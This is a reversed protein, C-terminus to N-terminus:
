EVQSRAPNELLSLIRAVAGKVEALDGKVEALDATMTDFRRNVDARFGAVDARLGAVDTELNAIKASMSPPLETDEAVGRLREDLETLARGTRFAEAELATVREGTTTTPMGEARCAAMWAQLAAWPDYEPHM